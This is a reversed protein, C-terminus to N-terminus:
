DRFWTMLMVSVFAAEPVKVSPTPPLVERGIATLALSRSIRAATRSSKEFQL